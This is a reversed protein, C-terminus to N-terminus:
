IINKIKVYNIFMLLCVMGLIAGCIVDSFYHVNLYIRSFAVLIIIFVCVIEVVYKLIKNKVYKNVFYIILGYFALSCMTHGSPFSFDIPKDILSYLPRERRFVNKFIVSILYVFFLNLTLSSVLLKNKFLVLIGVIVIVFVMVDGFNTIAKFFATLNDNVIYNQFFSSVSEDIKLVFNISTNGILFFMLLLFLLIVIYSRSKVLFDRLM